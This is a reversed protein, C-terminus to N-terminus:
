EKMRASKDLTEGSKILIEDVEQLIQGIPYNEEEVIETIKDIKYYLHQLRLTTILGIMFLLFLIIVLIIFVYEYWLMGFGIKDHIKVIVAGIAAIIVLNIVHELIIHKEFLYKILNKM